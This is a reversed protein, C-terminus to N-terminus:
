LGRVEGGSLVTIVANQPNRVGDTAPLGDEGPLGPSGFTFRFDRIGQYLTVSRSVFCQCFSDYEFTTQSFSSVYDSRYMTVPAAAGSGGGQPPAGCSEGRGGVGGSGNTVLNIGSFCGLPFPSTGSLCEYTGVIGPPPTLGPAGDRGGSVVRGGDVVLNVKQSADGLINADFAPIRESDSRDFGISGGTLSGNVIVTLDGGWPDAGISMTASGLGSTRCVNCGDPIIVTKPEEPDAWAEPDFYSQVTRGGSIEACDVTPVRVILECLGVSVGPPLNALFSNPVGTVWEDPTRTPVMIATDNGNFVERCIGHSTIKRMEASSVACYQQDLCESQAAAPSPGILLAIVLINHPKPNLM